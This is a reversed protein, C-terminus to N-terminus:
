PGREEDGVLANGTLMGAGANVRREANLAAASPKADAIAQLSDRVPVKNQPQVPSIKKATGKLDFHMPPTVSLSRNPLSESVVRGAVPIKELFNHEDSVVGMVKGNPTVKALYNVGGETVANGVFSGTVWMGNKQAKEFTDSQATLQWKPTDGKKLKKNIEANAKSMANLRNWLEKETLNGNEFLPKLSSVVGSKNQFDFHHQGSVMDGAGANKIRIHSGESAGLPKGDPGDWINRVHNDIINLDSDSVNTTKRSDTYKGKLKNDKILSTYSGKTAPVPETLYSRNEIDKTAQAKNGVRGAQDPILSSSAQSQAVAKADDRATLKSLAERAKDQTTQNIGQERYLARQSPMLTQLMGRGASETAWEGFSLAKEMMNAVDQPKGAQAVIPGVKPVRSLKDKQDFIFETAPGVEAKGSAAYHNPIYNPASSLTNGKLSNAGSLARAGKVGNTFLGGGILNIPDAVIDLFTNGAAYLPVPLGEPSFWESKDGSISEKLYERPANMATDVAGSVVERTKDVNEARRQRVNEQQKERMVYYDSPKQSAGYNRFFKTAWNDM